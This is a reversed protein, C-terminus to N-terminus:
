IRPPEVEFADCFDLVADVAAELQGLTSRDGVDTHCYDVLGDRSLQPSRWLHRWALIVLRSAHEWGLEPRRQRLLRTTWDPDFTGLPPAYLRTEADYPEYPIVDSVAAGRGAARRLPM